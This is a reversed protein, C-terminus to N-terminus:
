LDAMQTCYLCWYQVHWGFRDKGFVRWTARHQPTVTGILAIQVLTRFFSNFRRIIWKMTHRKWNKRHEWLILVMTVIYCELPKEKHLLNICLKYSFIQRWAVLSILISQGVLYYTFLAVYRKFEKRGEKILFPGFHGYWLKYFTTWWNSQWNTPRGDKVGWSKRVVISMQCM